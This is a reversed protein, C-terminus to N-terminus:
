NLDLDDLQRARLKPNPYDPHLGLMRPTSPRVPGWNIAYPHEGCLREIVEWNQRVRAGLADDPKQWYRRMLTINEVIRQTYELGARVFAVRQRWASPAQAAAEAARRLHAEAASLREATYLRPLSFVSAEYGHEAVYAMRAQEWLEFYARVPEAAPGFGRRYYDELIAQADQAPNWVLEAMVYYQPGQTAWHEWVSDIFIGITRAEAAFKLDKITQAVSLDPLGQQWGGPSGTNPRWMLQPALKGWAEFQELHTAGRTSGRDVLRTRGFFNAVSSIIVNDAPRAAIPAPRSHGYSMMLVYYDKDPYRKKLLDGLKNAFTVDRDTLAPRQERHNKWHFLRREGDPHDWATCDPCVCHGSSWGDNPSANFVRRTPDSALQEEVGELWLEWVKVNSQCLKVTRPNPFGSRTGDPQLAFIEPHAEHYREWWHSFAHGGEMELSDLQLRRARTWDHARGYGKNGLSSFHFVGSRSRIPPHYRYEFAALRISRRPVVDEGLEGPWLWRVGLKDQLFTYVANVTGYEQQKGSIRGDRGEVDLRQPDWRDRGAIVCHRENAALLIEEAHEFDFDTTPLLKALVPQYGVWIAREPLPSPQGELVAPRVGSIKEIYDALTEAAERSRPPAGALVVIPAPAIGEDVLVFEAASVLSTLLAASFLGSVFRKM